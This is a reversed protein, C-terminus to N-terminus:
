SFINQYNNYFVLFLYTYERLFQRYYTQDYKQQYLQSLFLYYQGYTKFDRFNSASIAHFVVESATSPDTIDFVHLGITSAIIAYERGNVAAGWIESFRTPALPGGCCVGAISTDNWNYVLRMNLSDQAHAASVFFLAM